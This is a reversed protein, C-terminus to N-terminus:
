RGEVLRGQADHHEWWLAELRDLSDKRWGISLCYALWEACARLAKQTPRMGELAARLRLEKRWEETTLGALPNDTAM